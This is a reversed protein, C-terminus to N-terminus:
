RRVLSQPNSQRGNIANALLARTREGRLRFHVRRLLDLIQRFLFHRMQAGCDFRFAAHFAVEAFFGLHVNAPQNFNLAVAAQTVAPIKRHAALPRVRISPRAFTWPLARHRSLLFRHRALLSQFRLSFLLSVLTAFSGWSAAAAGAPAAAFLEFRLFSNRLFFSFRMTGCPTTHM